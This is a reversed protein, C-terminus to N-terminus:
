DRTNGFIESRVGFGVMNAVSRQRNDLTLFTMKIKSMKEAYIAVAVHWLDAGRLYGTALVSNLEQTLPRSPNIWSIKNLRLKSPVRGERMCVSRYEAELLSSSVLREFKGLAEEYVDSSPERAEIAVLVSTDIYATSM